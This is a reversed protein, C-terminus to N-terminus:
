FIAEFESGFGLFSVQTAIPGMGSPLRGEGKGPVAFLKEQRAGNKV